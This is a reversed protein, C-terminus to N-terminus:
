NRTKADEEKGSRGLEEGDCLTEGLSPCTYVNSWSHSQAERQTLAPASKFSLHSAPTLHPCPERTYSDLHRQEEEQSSMNIGLVKHGIPPRCWDTQIIFLYDTFM